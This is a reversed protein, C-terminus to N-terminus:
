SGLMRHLAGALLFTVDACGSGRCVKFSLPDEHMLNVKMRSVHGHSAQGLFLVRFVGFVKIAGTGAILRKARVRAHQRSDLRSWDVCM